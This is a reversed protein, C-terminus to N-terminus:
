SQRGWEAVLAAMADESEADPRDTIVLLRPSHGAGTHELLQVRVDDLGQRLADAQRGIRRVHCWLRVLAITMVAVLLLLAYLLATM